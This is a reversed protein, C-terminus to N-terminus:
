GQEPPKTSPAWRLFGIFNLWLSATAYIVEDPVEAWGLRRVALGLGITGLVASTFSSRAYWPKASEDM